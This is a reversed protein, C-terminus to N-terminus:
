YNLDSGLDLYLDLGFMRGGVRGEGPNDTAPLGSPGYLQGPKSEGIGVVSTDKVIKVGVFRGMGSDVTGYRLGDEM